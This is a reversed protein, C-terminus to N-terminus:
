FSHKTQASPGIGLAFVREEDGIHGEVRLLYGLDTQGREDFSRYLRIRPQGALIRGQWTLKTTTSLRRRSASALQTDSTPRPVLPSPHPHPRGVCVQSYVLHVQARSGIVPHQLQSARNRIQRPFFRIGHLMQGM